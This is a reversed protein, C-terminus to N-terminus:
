QSLNCILKLHSGLRTHDTALRREASGGIGRGRVGRAGETLFVDKLVIENSTEPSLQADAGSLRACVWDFGM